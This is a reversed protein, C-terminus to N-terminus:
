FIHKKQSPSKKFNFNTEHGWQYPIHVSQSTGYYRIYVKGEEEVKKPIDESMSFQRDIIEKTEENIYSYYTM